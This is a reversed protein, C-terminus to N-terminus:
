YALNLKYCFRIQRKLREASNGGYFLEVGRRRILLTVVRNNCFLIFFGCM